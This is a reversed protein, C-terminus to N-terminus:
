FSKRKLGEILYNKKLILFLLCTLESLLFNTIKLTTKLIFNLIITIFVPVFFIQQHNICQIGRIKFLFRPFARLVERFRTM